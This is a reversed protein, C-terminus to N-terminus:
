VSERLLPLTQERGIHCNREHKDLVLLPSLFHKKSLLIQHKEEFPLYSQGIRGGVRILNDVVIPNLPLLKSHKSLSMDKKLTRFEDPFCELQAEKLIEFVAQEIDKVTIKHPIELTLLKRKQILWLQKFKLLCAVHLLLKKLSFCHDWKIFTRYQVKTQVLNKSLKEEVELPKDSDKDVCISDVQQELLNPGHLWSQHFKLKSFPVFRTCFEAPNQFTPVYHWHEPTSHLCIENLRNM